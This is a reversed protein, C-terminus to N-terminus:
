YIKKNLNNNTVGLCTSIYTNAHTIIEDDKDLHLSNIEIEVM